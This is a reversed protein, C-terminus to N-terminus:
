RILNKDLITLTDLLANMKGITIAFFNASDEQGLDFNPTYNHCDLFNDDWELDCLELEELAESLLAEYKKNLHDTLYEIFTLEKVYKGHMFVDVAYLDENTHKSGLVSKLIEEKHLEKITDFNKIFKFYRVKGTNVSVAHFISNNDIFIDCPNTENADGNLFVEDRVPTQLKYNMTINITHLVKLEDDHYFVLEFRKGVRYLGIVKEKLKSLERNISNVITNM